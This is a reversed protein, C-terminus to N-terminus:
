TTRIKNIILKIEKKEIEILSYNAKLNNKKLWFNHLTPSLSHSVPKGIIGYQKETM